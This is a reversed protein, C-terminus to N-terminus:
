LSETRISRRAETEGTKCWECVCVWVWWEVGKRSQTKGTWRATIDATQGCLWPVLSHLPCQLFHGQQLTTNDRGSGTSAYFRCIFHKQKRWVCSWKDCFNQMFLHTQQSVLCILESKDVANFHAKWALYVHQHVSILDWQRVAKGKFFISQCVCM